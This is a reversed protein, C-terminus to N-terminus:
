FNSKEVYSFKLEWPLYPLLNSSAPYLKGFGRISILPFVIICTITSFRLKEACCM